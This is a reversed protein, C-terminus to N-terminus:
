ADADNVVKWFIEQFRSDRRDLHPYGVLLCGLYDYGQWSEALGARVPNDLIYQITNAFIGNSREDERVVHDHAQRQWVAPRIIPNLQTRLYKTAIRQDSLESLGILLLHIHDPMICYAPVALKYRACTHTLVERFRSHFTDSLAFRARRETTHTWFVYARGRYCVPGLRPLKGKM